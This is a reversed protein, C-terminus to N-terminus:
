RGPLARATEWSHGDAFTIGIQLTGGLARFRATCHGETEAPAAALAARLETVAAQSAAADCGVHRLVAAAVDQLLRDFEGDTLDLVFFFDHDSM